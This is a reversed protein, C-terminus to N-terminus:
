KRIEAHTSVHIFLLPPPPPPSPLLVRFNCAPPLSHMLIKCSHTSEIKRRGEYHHTKYKAHRRIVLQCALVFGQSIGKGQVPSSKHSFRKVTKEHTKSGSTCGFGTVCHETVGTGRSVRAGYVRVWPVRSLGPGLRGRGSLVKM